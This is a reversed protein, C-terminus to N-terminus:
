DNASTNKLETLYMLNNFTRCLYRTFLIAGEENLHTEDSADSLYLEPYKRSDPSETNLHFQFFVPLIEKYQRPDAKPENFVPYIRKRETAKITLNIRDLYVQQLIKDPGSKERNGEFAQASNIARATLGSQTGSSINERGNEEHLEQRQLGRLFEGYLPSLITWWKRDTTIITETMWLWM